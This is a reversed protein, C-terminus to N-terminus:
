CSDAASYPETRFAAASTLLYQGGPMNSLLPAMLPTMITWPYFARFLVVYCAAAPQVQLAGTNISGNANLVSPFNASSFNPFARMDVQLTSTCKSTSFLGTMESCVLTRLQTPTVPGSVQGTRVQRAADDIANELASNAFFIVGSEIIGFIFLFLVPAIMAFEIAASGSRSAGRMRQRWTRWYNLMDLGIM